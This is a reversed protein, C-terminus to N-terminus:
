LVVKEITELTNPNIVEIEIKDGEINFLVLAYQSSFKKLSPTWPLTEQAYYPAGAAGNVIQVFPRNLKIKKGAWDDPYINTNNDVVLRSYNHEDGTLLIRFKKSKNVLIDLMEDRREIIGKEVSTGAVWPRIENNGKYWMDNYSHGGNPFVPTHITVFVHQIHDDKEYKAIENALWNLQNDMIYGHPNGGIKSIIGPNPTYWYNSNLVIMATNGYIYSYVNEKYSPFDVNTSDPDYKSGDESEPGNAPNSFYSAFLSEGSRKDYPFGDVSNYEKPNGFTNMLIEHNGMGVNLVTSHMFPTISTLWNTYELEMEGKDIKYGDIMDGTFQWFKVDKYAVLAAMKKLILANHGKTNSEGKLTGGRSDSAFAFTFKDKNGPKPAAQLRAKHIIDGIKIEYTYSTNAFMNSLTIEHNKGEKFDFQINNLIVTPTCKLNTAFSITIYRETQRSLFPGWTIDPVINFSDNVTFSISKNIIINNQKDLVRYALRGKKHKEWNALDYKGSLRKRINISAKGNKIIEHKKFYVAIPYKMPEDGYLGYILTGDFDKKFQFDIGNENGTEVEDFQSLSWKNRKENEQDITYLKLNKGNKTYVFEGNKVSINALSKPIPTNIDIFSTKYAFAFLLSAGIILLLFLKTKKSHIM